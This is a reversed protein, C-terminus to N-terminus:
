INIGPISFPICNEKSKQFLKVYNSDQMQQITSQFHTIIEKMQGINNDMKM